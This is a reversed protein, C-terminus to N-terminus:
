EVQIIIRYEFRRRRRRFSLSEVSFARTAIGRTFNRSPEFLRLGSSFILTRFGTEGTATRSVSWDIGRALNNRPRGM